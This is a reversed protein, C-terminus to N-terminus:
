RSSIVYVFLGRVDFTSSCRYVILPFRSDFFWRFLCLISIDVFILSVDDLVSRSRFHVLVRQNGFIHSCSGFLIPCWVDFFSHTVIRLLDFISTFIRLTPSCRVGVFALSVDDFISRRRVNVLFWRVDLTSSVRSVISSFRFTSSFVCTVSSRSNVFM